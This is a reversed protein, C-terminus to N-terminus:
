LCKGVVLDQDFKQDKESQIFITLLRTEPYSVEELRNVSQDEIVKLNEVIKRSLKARNSFELLSSPWAESQALDTINNFNM